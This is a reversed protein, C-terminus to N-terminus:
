YRLTDASQRSGILAVRGEELSVLGVRRLIFARLLIESLEEDTQLVHRVDTEELVLVDGSDRVRLLDLSATGLLTGIEGTFEGTSATRLLREGDHTPALVDIRGSMVVYLRGPRDGPRLLEEGASVHFVRGRGRLREMQMTSLVPFLQERRSEFVSTPM